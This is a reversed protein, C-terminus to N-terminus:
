EMEGSPSARGHKCKDPAKHDRCKRGELESLGTARQFISSQVRQAEKSNAAENARNERKDEVSKDAMESGLGAGSKGCQKDAQCGSCDAEGGEQM